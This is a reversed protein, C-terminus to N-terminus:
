RKGGFPKHGFPKKGGPRNQSYPRDGFGGSSGGSSGRPGRGEFPRESRRDSSREGLGRDDKFGEGRPRGEFSREQPRRDKDFGRGEGFRGERPRDKNFGRDPGDRGPGGATRPRYGDSRSREGGESRDGWGRPARDYRDKGGTRDFRGERGFRESRESREPREPRRAREPSDYRDYAGPAADREPRPGQYDDARGLPNDSTVKGGYGGTAESRPASDAWSGMSGRQGREQQRAAQRRAEFGNSPRERPGEYRRDTQPRAAGSRPKASNLLAEREDPTLTRWQGEPLDGLQITGIRVRLLDVVGLEVLECMRRIQRNRGEVLVFKLTQDNLQTVMAPRLARGDLHLGECLLSLKKATIEGQVRVHYEKELDTEQGIVARALVGDESLILLGHSDQDLRGVPALQSHLGPMPGTTKAGKYLSVPRILRVAPVQGPEPQGSVVGEPKNLIVTVKQSLSAQGGAALSVTQGPMIKRGADEVREGDVWVQGRAILDDAERRSCIGEQAMWKNLRQPEQGTYTRTTSM